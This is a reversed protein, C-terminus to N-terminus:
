LRAHTWMNTRATSLTGNDPNTSSYYWAECGKRTMRPWLGDFVPTFARTTGPMWRKGCPVRGLRSFANALPKPSDRIESVHRLSRRFSASEHQCARAGCYFAAFHRRSFAACKTQTAATERSQRICLM